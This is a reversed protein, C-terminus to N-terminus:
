VRDGCLAELIEGVTISDGTGTDRAADCLGRVRAVAREAPHAHDRGALVDLVTDALTEANDAVSAPWVDPEALRAALAAVLAARLGATTPPATM